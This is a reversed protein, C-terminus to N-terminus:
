FDKPKPTLDFKSLPCNSGVVRNITLIIHIIIFTIFSYVDLIYHIIILYLIRSCWCCKTLSDIKIQTFPNNKKLNEEFIIVSDKELDFELVNKIKCNIELELGM